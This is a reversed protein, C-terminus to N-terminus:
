LGNQIEIIAARLDPLDDRVTEMATESNWRFYKHAAVIRMGIVADWPIHPQQATLEQPLHSVADGIRSFGDRLSCELMAADSRDALDVFHNLEDIAKLIDGCRDLPSRSM